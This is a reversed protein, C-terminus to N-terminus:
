ANNVGLNKYINLLRAEQVEWNFEGRAAELANRGLKERLQSDDRLRILAKTYDESNFEVTQGMQYKDVLDGSYIGKTALVPRGTAMAEFIKNPPGVQNNKNSPNFVCHIADAKMTLPLVESMPIKGLFTVNSIKRAKEKIESETSGFGAITFHINELGKCIDIAELLFRSNNLGGIYILTFIKNSPAQYDTSALPKSNRVLIIKKCGMKKFYSEHPEAVTIIQDALPALKEEKRLFHNAWWQPIDRAVMYGWIEHADYILKIGLKKKLQVGAPLTDLDHCHVADFNSKEHLIKGTKFLQRWWPRLRFIDYPLLGMYGTNRTRVVNIGDIIEKEPHQSGRDWGIVTVDHGAKHLSMAENYVRPDHTFPNSLLM